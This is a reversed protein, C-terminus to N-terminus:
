YKTQRRLWAAHRLSRAVSKIIIRQCYTKVTDLSLDLATAIEKHTQGQDFLRLVEKERASLELM